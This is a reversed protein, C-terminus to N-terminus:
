FSSGGFGAAIVSINSSSSVTTTELDFFLDFGASTREAAGGFFLALSSV